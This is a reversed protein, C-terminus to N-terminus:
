MMKLDNKCRKLTSLVIYKARWFPTNLKNFRRKSTKATSKLHQFPMIQAIPLIKKFCFLIRRGGGGGSDKIPSLRNEKKEKYEKLHKV